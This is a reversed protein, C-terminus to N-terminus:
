LNENKYDPYDKWLDEDYSKYIGKKVGPAMSLCIALTLVFLIAIIGLFAVYGTIM